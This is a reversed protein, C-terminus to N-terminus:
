AKKKRRSMIVMAAAVVVVGLGGAILEIPLSDKEVDQMDIVNSQGEIFVEETVLMVASHGPIKLDGGKFTEVGKLDAKENNILVKFDSGPLTLSQDMESGNFLLIMTENIELAENKRIMYGIMQDKLPILSNPGNDFFVLSTEVAEQTSLSFAPYAKRIEILGKHYDFIDMYETKRNWDIQNVSDPSKYSNHDGGKTRLFDVGLHLFPMGQSTLVIANSLKHMEMRAEDSDEPNTAIFKDWLTLNDHASVYNVSQSPHNTWPAKSYNVQDYAVQPHFVAGVIGFKVSEEFGLRGSVFGGEEANFVHGKIGDRMDDNFAGITEVQQINAKLLRKSDPLTSAGGTWGEGYLVVNPNIKRLENEIIQMTEIDHVGMLDFRFGDIHYETMWHKLSDIILKRVMVRESATENGTGSANSYEGDKMRYYYGPMLLSLNSDSSLATHNYVVDMIVGIEADHLGKIMEKMERIRVEGNFPDMSYSGEPVNYNKPDYGWNFVKDELRSEDISNFDYMPLIQVHTIGLEKLHSLGTKTGDDTQTDKEVVGLYKGKNEIGSSPHISFDRIHMEYVIIDNNLKYVPGEDESWDEPDLRSFDVVMSRDGNVGAGVAYPDYTEREQGNMLFQFTYYTGHLDGAVSAEWLGKANQIMEITEELSDGHGTGYLNLSMSEALPSWVRFVTENETYAAGLDGDYGYATEFAETSFIGSIEVPLEKYDMFRTTYKKGVEIAEDLIIVFSQSMDVSTGSVATPKLANGESDMLSFNSRMEAVEIPKSSTVKITKEDILQASLFKPSLDIESQDFYFKESGQVVFIELQGLDNVATIPIFRDIEVDKAEWEGKRVIFGVEEVDGISDLPIVAVKGYADEGTFEYAKGAGGAPWIWLNWGEYMSDFRHYHVVLEQPAASFGIMPVMNVMLAVILLLVIKRNM